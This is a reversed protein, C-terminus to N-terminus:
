ALKMGGRGELIDEAEQRTPRYLTIGYNEAPLVAERFADLKAQVENQSPSPNNMEIEAILVVKVKGNM